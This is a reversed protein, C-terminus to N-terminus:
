QTSYASYIQFFPTNRWKISSLGRASVRLLIEDEDVEYPGTSFCVGLSPNLLKLNQTRHLM